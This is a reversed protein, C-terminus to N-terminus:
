KGDDDKESQKRSHNLQIQQTGQIEEDEDEKEGNGEGTIRKNPLHVFTKIRNLHVAENNATPNLKNNQKQDPSKGMMKESFHLFIDKFGRILSSFEGNPDM